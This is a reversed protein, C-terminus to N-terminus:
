IQKFNTGTVLKFMVDKLESIKIRKQEGTDRNRITVDEKELSDFDITICVPVGIEDMRAYRKGVSGADDYQVEYCDKLLEYVKKTKAVLEPKNKLLPFIGAQLPVLSVPLALSPTNEKERYAHELLCYFTRDFGISCEWVHPIFKSGDERLFNMDQGSIKAHQNLDYDTRYNNAILEIWGISTKVEFDWGEKAYFAREEDDVQRFRMAEKPIGVREFLQQTRALYYAILKGSMKKDAILKGATISKIENTKQFQVKIEYNKIEDWREIADIEKPDFFIETEAQIFEVQRMLTQRPSIENRYAKGIQSVGCPLKVRMTKAIRPWDAFISQCTEPRMYTKMDGRGVISQVMLSSKTVDSLEGGAPSKLNHKRILKTLEEVPTGENVQEGLDELLKDARLFQGTKKCQTVPDNFNELHGSAKFIQETLIISGDIELFGEAQVFTKRWLQELKKRISVGYPGYDYFGAPSNAYIEAAPYFISRRVALNIVQDYTAM